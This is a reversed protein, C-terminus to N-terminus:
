IGNIDAIKTGMKVSDGVAVCPTCPAGIHQQLPFILEKPPNMASIPKSATLVKNDNPHVGGKFTLKM